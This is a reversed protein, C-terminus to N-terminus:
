NIAEIEVLLKRLERAGPPAEGYSWRQQLVNWGFEKIPGSANAIKEGSRVSHAFVNIWEKNSGTVIAVSQSKELHVIWAASPGGHGAAAIAGIWKSSAEFAGHNKLERLLHKCCRSLHNRPAVERGPAFDPCTCKQESIAVQYEVNRSMSKMRIPQVDSFDPPSFTLEMTSAASVLASARGAPTIAGQLPSRTLHEVPKADSRPGSKKGFILYAAFVLVACFIIAEMYAGNGGADGKPEPVVCQIEFLCSSQDAARALADGSRV